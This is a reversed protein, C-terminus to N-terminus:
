PVSTEQMGKQILDKEELNALRVRKLSEALSRMAIQITSGEEAQPM